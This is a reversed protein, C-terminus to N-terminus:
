YIRSVEIGALQCFQRLPRELNGLIFLQHFGKVDRTDPCGDVTMEVSTRCCGSPPQAINSVVRGTGIMLTKKPWGFQLVTVDKGEPWLVQMSVGQRTHYNRILYPARYPQDCGELKTPSTCHAGILTNNITNPSPDQIFTPRNFLLFSVLEGLVGHSCGECTAVIGEDRLKSAALCPPKAILCGTLSIGQCDQAAMLRRLVAYQQAAELIDAKTPEILEKANNAYFDAIARAEDTEQAKKIEDQWKIECPVIKVGLEHASEKGATVLIRARKLRWLANLMRVATELWEVSQTAAMLVGPVNRGVQLNATFGSLNSYLITPIAGREKVIQQVPGWGFLEMAGLILGDPPEKKLGEIYANVRDTEHLPEDQVRLEVGLKEAAARLTKTFLAQQAPIDCNGGPWSVDRTKPPRVFAVSVIPKGASKAEQGYLSSAFEFLGMEAAAAAAGAGAMLRRRSFGIPCSGSPCTPCALM